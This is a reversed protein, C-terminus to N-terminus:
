CTYLLNLNRHRVDHALQNLDNQETARIAGLLGVCGNSRVLSLGVSSSDRLLLTSSAAAPVGCSAPADNLLNQSPSGSISAPLLM